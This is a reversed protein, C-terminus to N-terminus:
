AHNWTGACVPTVVLPGIFIYDLQSGMMAEKVLLSLLWQKKLFKM